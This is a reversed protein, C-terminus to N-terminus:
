VGNENFLFKVIISFFVLRGDLLVMRYHFYFTGLLVYPLTVLVKLIYSWIGFISGFVLKIQNKYINEM